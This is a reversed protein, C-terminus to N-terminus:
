EAWYDYTSRALAAITREIRRWGRNSGKVFVAIAVHTGDPLTIIGVDNVAATVGFATSWTGTKHAVPTGPPLLGPIRDTNRAREMIELLRSTEDPGLTEDRWIRALLDVTADPTATDREDELFAAASEAKRELPVAKKLQWLADVTWTSEPPAENVGSYDLSMAAEYRDVRIEKVGLSRLHATVAEPGGCLRMLIDSATNDSDVMMADLLERAPLAHVRRRHRFIWGSGTRFDAPTIPVSDELSLEDCSVRHLLALAIPLKYVSAMPFRERGRFSLQVGSELHEIAVGATGGARDAFREIDGALALLASDPTASRIVVRAEAPAPTVGSPAEARARAQAAVGAPSAALSLAVASALLASNHRAALRTTTAV